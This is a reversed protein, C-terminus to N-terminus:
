HLLLTRSPIWITLSDYPLTCSPLLFRPMGYDERVSLHLPLTCYNETQLPLASGSGSGSDLSSIYDSNKKHCHCLLIYENKKIVYKMKRHFCLIKCLSQASGSGSDSDLTSNYVSKKNIVNVYCFINM